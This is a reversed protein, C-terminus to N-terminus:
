RCGQEAPIEEFYHVFSHFALGQMLVTWFGKLDTIIASTSGPTMSKSCDWQHKRIYSKAEEATSTTKTPPMKCHKSPRKSDKSQKSQRNFKRKSKGNQKSQSSTTTSSSNSRSSSSESGDTDKSQRLTTFLRKAIM